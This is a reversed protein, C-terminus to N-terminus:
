AARRRKDEHEAQDHHEQDEGALVLFPRQWETHQEGHRERQEARQEGDQEATEGIIDVELDTERHQDRERRLVRDQDELIRHDITIGAM